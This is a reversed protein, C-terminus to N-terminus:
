FYNLFQTSLSLTDSYIHKIPRCTNYSIIVNNIGYNILSHRLQKVYAYKNAVCNISVALRALSCCSQFQCTEGQM